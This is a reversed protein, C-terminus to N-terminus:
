CLKGIMSCLTVREKPIQPILPYNYMPENNYLAFIIM